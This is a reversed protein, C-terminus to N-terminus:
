NRGTGDAERFFGSLGDLTEPEVWCEVTQGSRAMHILGARNLEKLHHSVTSAAIGLDKGLSGVCERPGGDCCTGPRCCAALRLFVALRHPNALAKFVEALADPTIDRFNSM